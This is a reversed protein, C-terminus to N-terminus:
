WFIFADHAEEVVSNYDAATTVKVTAIKSGDVPSFSDIVEGNATGGWESGTSFAPNIRDIGLTNLISQIDTKM